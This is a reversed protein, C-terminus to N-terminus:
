KRPDFSTTWNTKWQGPKEGAGSENWRQDACAGYARSFKAPACPKEARFKSKGARTVPSKRNQLFARQRIHRSASNLIGNNDRKRTKITNKTIADLIGRKERGAQDDDSNRYDGKPTNMEICIFILRAIKKM